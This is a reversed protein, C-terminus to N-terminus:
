SRIIVPAPRPPRPPRGCARPALPVPAPPAPASAPPAIPLSRAVLSLKLFYPHLEALRRALHAPLAGCVDDCVRPLAVVRPMANPALSLELVRTRVGEEDFLYDVAWREDMTICASALSWMGTAGRAYMADVWVDTGDGLAWTGTRFDVDDDLLDVVDWAPCGCIISWVLAGPGSM